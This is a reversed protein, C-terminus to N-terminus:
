KERAFTPDKFGNNLNITKMADLRQEPLFEDFALKLSKKYEPNNYSSNGKFRVGVEAFSRGDVTVTAPEYAPDDPNSEFNQERIAYWDSSSFQLQWDHFFSDDFPDYAAFASSALGLLLAATWNCIRRM